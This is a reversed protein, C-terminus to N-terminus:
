KNGEKRIPIAIRCNRKRTIQKSSRLAQELINTNSSIIRPLFNPMTFIRSLKM